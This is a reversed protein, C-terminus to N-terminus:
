EKIDKIIIPDKIAIAANKVVNLIRKSSGERSLKTAITPFYKRILTELRESVSRGNIANRDMTHTEWAIRNNPHFHCVKVPKEANLYRKVFGSCGVNYTYNLTTVRDKYIPKKLVKNIIPEEKNSQTKIIENKIDQIIDLASSKLFRVGGNFRPKSYESLGIDSFVPCEFLENQWADLDHSFIVDNNNLHNNIVFEEAFIKSGTMCFVNLDAVIAEVGMYEYDFNSIFLIDEIAWDLDLSNEIQAKVFPEITDFSQNERQYNAVILNKM